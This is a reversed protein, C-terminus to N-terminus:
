QLLSDKEKKQKILLKELSSKRQQFSKLSKGAKEPVFAYTAVVGFFAIVACTIFLAKTGITRGFQEFAVAGIIAGVKGFAACIGHSMARIETPFIEAPVVFTTTQPGLNSVFFTLGYGILFAIHISLLSDLALGVALFTVVM